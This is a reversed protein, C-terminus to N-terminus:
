APIVEIRDADFARCGPKARSVVVKEVLQQLVQRQENLLMGDWGALIADPDLGHRPEGLAQLEQAMRAAERDLEIGVSRVMEIPIDLQAYAASTETRRAEIAQRRKVLRARTKAHDDGAALRARFRQNKELDELVQRVVEAEFPEAVIGIGNCGGRTSMCLYASRSGETRGKRQQAVLAAGCRGCRALGGTLLYRRGPRKRRSVRYEKGDSRIVTTPASLVARVAHWTDRDLIPEWNGDGVVEGKYVRLATATPTTLVSRVTQAEWRGGRASPVGRNTLDRAVAALSDGALVAAAM